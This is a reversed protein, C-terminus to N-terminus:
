ATLRDMETADILDRLYATEACVATIWYPNTGAAMQARIKAYAAGSADRAAEAVEADPLSRIFLVGAKAQPTYSVFEDVPEEAVEPRRPIVPPSQVLLPRPASVSSTGDGHVTITTIMPGQDIRARRELEKAWGEDSNRTAIARAIAENVATDAATDRASVMATILDDLRAVLEPAADVQRAISMVRAADTGLGDVNAYPNAVGRGYSNLSTRRNAQGARTLATRTAKVVAVTLTRIEALETDTLWTRPESSVWQSHYCATRVSYEAKAAWETRTPWTNSTM